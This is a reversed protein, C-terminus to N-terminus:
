NNVSLKSINVSFNSKTDDGDISIWLALVRKKLISHEDISLTLKRTQEDKFAIFNEHLLDSLPHKRKKKLLPKQSVLNFFEIHSIGQDNKALSHLTKIWTPAIAREFFNLRRDGEYVLGIRFLFDDAGKEGQIKDKLDLNGTVKLEVTLSTLTKPEKLSYIIPSASSKVTILLGSENSTVENALLSKYKLIKWDQADLSIAEAATSM